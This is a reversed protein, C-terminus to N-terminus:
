KVAPVRHVQWDSKGERYLIWQAAASTLHAYAGSDSFKEWGAGADIGTPIYGYQQFIANWTRLGCGLERELAAKVQAEDSALTINKIKDGVAISYRGGEIGNAWLTQDKNVTYPIEVEFELKGGHGSSAGSSVVELGDHNVSKGSALPVAVFTGKGGPRSYIKLTTEPPLNEGSITLAQRTSAIQLKLGGIELVAAKRRAGGAYQEDVIPVRVDEKEAVIMEDWLGPNDRLIQLAWGTCVMMQPGMRSGIPRPKGGPGKRDSRYDVCKGDVMVYPHLDFRNIGAPVPADDSYYRYALPGTLADYVMKFALGKPIKGGGHKLLGQYYLYQENDAFGATTHKAGPKFDYMARVYDNSPRALEPGSLDAVRKMLEADGTALAAPGASLPIYGHHKMRCAHLNKAGDVVEALLKQDAEDKSERLLLWSLELMLGLDQALHNSSGLAYGDLLFQPNPKGALRDTCAFFGLPEKKQRRELSVSGGDDWFYPVFGKEGEQLAHEKGWKVATPGADYQKGTFLTDSHNLMKLYFPLQWKTLIEKYRADGTARYANVMAAAFWAGDHMTDLAEGQVFQDFQGKRGFDLYEYIMGRQPSSENKKLHNEFVFETMRRAFARAEDASMPGADQAKSWAPLPTLSPPEVAFTAAPIVVLIQFLIGRHLHTM